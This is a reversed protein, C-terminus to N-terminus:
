PTFFFIDVEGKVVDLASELDRRTTFHDVYKFPKSEASDHQGDRARERDRERLRERERERERNRERERQAGIIM